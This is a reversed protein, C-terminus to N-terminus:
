GCGGDVDRELGSDLPMTLHYSRGEVWAFSFSKSADEQEEGKRGEVM